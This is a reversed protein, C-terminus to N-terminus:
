RSQMSRRSRLPQTSPCIAAWDTYGNAARAASATPYRHLTSCAHRCHEYSPPTPQILQARPASPCSPRAQDLDAFEKIAEQFAPDGAKFLRMKKITHAPLFWTVLHWLLSVLRSSNCILMTRCMEPFPAEGGPMADKLLKLAPKNRMVRSMSLGDLDIIWLRGHLAVGARLSDRYLVDTQFIIDYVQSTVWFDASTERVLGACACLLNAASDTSAHRTAPALGLWRLDRIM